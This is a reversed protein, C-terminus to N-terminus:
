PVVGGPNLTRESVEGRTAAVWSLTLSTGRLGYSSGDHLGPHLAASDPTTRTAGGRTHNTGAHGLRSPGRGGETM